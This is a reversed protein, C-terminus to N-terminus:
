ELEEQFTKAHVIMDDLSSPVGGMTSGSASEGNVEQLAPANRLGFPM